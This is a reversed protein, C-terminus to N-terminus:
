RDDEPTGWDEVPMNQELLALIETAAEACSLRDSDVVLAAEAIAKSAKWHAHVVYHEPIRETAPRSRNRALRSELTCHVLADILQVQNRRAMDKVERRRVQDVYNGDLLVALGAEILRQAITLIGAYIAPRMAAIYEDGTIARRIADTNLHPLLRGTRARYLTVVHRAISTKGAAPAGWLLLVARIM